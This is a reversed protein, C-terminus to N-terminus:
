NKMAPWSNRVLLKEGQRPEAACVVDGDYEVFLDSTTEGGMQGVFGLLESRLLKKHFLQIIGEGMELDLALKIECPV